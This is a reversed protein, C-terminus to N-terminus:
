GPMYKGKSHFHKPMLKMSGNMMRNDRKKMCLRNCEEHVSLLMKFLDHFQCLEEEVIVANQSSFILDEITSCKRILRGNSKRRREKLTELKCAAGKETLNRQRRSKIVYEENTIANQDIWKSCTSIGPLSNTRRNDPTHQATPFADQTKEAYQEELNENLGEAISM